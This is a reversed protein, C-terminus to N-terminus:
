GGRLATLPLPLTEPDIKEVRGVRARRVPQTFPRDAWKALTNRFTGIIEDSLNSKDGAFEAICKELVTRNTMIM